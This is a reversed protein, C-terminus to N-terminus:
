YYYKYFDCTKKRTYKKDKKEMSIENTYISLINKDTNVSPYHSPFFGDTTNLAFYRHFYKTPKETDIRM